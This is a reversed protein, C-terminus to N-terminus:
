LTTPYSFAVLSHYAAQILLVLYQGIVFFVFLLAPNKVCIVFFLMENRYAEM